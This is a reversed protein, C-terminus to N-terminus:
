LARQQVPIDSRILLSILSNRSFCRTKKWFERERVERSWTVGKREAIVAAVIIEVLCSKHPIREEVESLVMAAAKPPATPM